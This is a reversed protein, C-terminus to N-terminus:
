CSFPIAGIMLTFGIAVISLTCVLFIYCKILGLFPL